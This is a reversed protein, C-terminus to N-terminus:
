LDRLLIAPVAAASASQRQYADPVPHELCGSSPPDRPSPPRCLGGLSLPASASDALCPPVPSASFYSSFPHCSPITDPIQFSRADPFCCTSSGSASPETLSPHPHCSFTPLIVTWRSLSERPCLSGLLLVTTLQTPSM